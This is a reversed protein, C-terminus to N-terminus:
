AHMWNSFPVSQKSHSLCGQSDPLSLSVQLYNKYQQFFPCPELLGDWDPEGNGDVIKQSIRDGRVFEEQM